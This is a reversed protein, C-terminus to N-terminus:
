AKRVAMSRSKRHAARTRKGVGASYGPTAPAVNDPVRRRVARAVNPILFGSLIIALFFPTLILTEGIFTMFFAAGILWKHRFFRQRALGLFVVLAFPIGLLGMLEMVGNSTTRAEARSTKVTTRPDGYRLMEQAYRENDLGVGFLPYRLAVNLGAEADYQRAVASGRTEGYLKEQTNLSTIVLTPGLFIPVASLLLFRQAASAASWREAAYAVCILSAILLGTTSQLTFLAVIALAGDSLSRRRFLGLYLFLNLYIQFVGPEWFFGNPRKFISILSSPDHYTFILAISRYELEGEILVYPRFESPIVLALVFTAIAQFAFLRLILTLDAALTEKREHVYVSLVLWGGLIALFRGAFGGTSGSIFGIFAILLFGAIFLWIHRHSPKLLESPHRLMLAPGIFGAYLIAKPFLLNGGSALIAFFLMVRRAYMRLTPDTLLAGTQSTSM